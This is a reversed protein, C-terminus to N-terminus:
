VDAGRVLVLVILLISMAGSIAEAALVVAGWTWGEMWIGITAAFILPSMALLVRCTWIRLSRM